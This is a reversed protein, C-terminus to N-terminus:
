GTQTWASGTWSWIHVPPAAAQGEVLAGILSVAKGNNIIEGNLVPPGAAALQVWTRGNWRWTVLPSPVLAGGYDQAGLLISHTIPDWSLGVLADADVVTPTLVAHWASGDWRWTGTTQGAEIARYTTVALLSAAAPNWGIEIDPAPFTANGTIRAWHDTSWIWTESAGGVNSPLATVLVMEKVGPDWAMAAAGGPPPAGDGGANLKDWTSGDWGWTDNVNTAAPSLEGGFLLVMGLQPDYASAAAFRGPPSVPPIARRWGGDSWIWTADAGANGGFVVVQNSASDEAVSYGVVLAGDATPGPSVPKSHLPAPTLVPHAQSRSIFFGGVGAVGIAAVLGLFARPTSRPSDGM